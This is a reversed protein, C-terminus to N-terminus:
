ATRQKKIWKIKKYRHLIERRNFYFYLFGIGIMLLDIGFGQHLDKINIGFEIFIDFPYYGIFGFTGLIMITLSMVLKEIANIYHLLTAIILLIFGTMFETNCLNGLFMSLVIGIWLLFLPSFKKFNNSEAVLDDPIILNEKEIFDDRKEDEM